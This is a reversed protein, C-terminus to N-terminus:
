VPFTYTFSRKESKFIKITEASAINSFKSTLRKVFKDDKILQTPSPIISADVDYLSQCYWGPLVIIDIQNIIAEDTSSEFLVKAAPISNGNFKFILGFYLKESIDYRYKGILNILQEQADPKLSFIKEFIKKPIEFYCFYSSKESIYIENDALSTVYDLFPDFVVSNGYIHTQSKATNDKNYAYLNKEKPISPLLETVLNWVNKYSSVGCLFQYFDQKTRAKNIQHLFLHGEANLTLNNGLAKVYALNWDFFKPICNTMLTVESTPTMFNLIFNTTHKHVLINDFHLDNHVIGFFEMVALSYICQFLINYFSDKLLSENAIHTKPKLAKDLEALCDRMSMMEGGNTASSGTIMLNVPIQPFNEGVAKYHLSKEYHLNKFRGINFGKIITGLECTLFGLLPIFNPSHRKLIINDTIYEYVRKEYKLGISNYNSSSSASRKIDELATEMYSSKSKLELIKKELIKLEKKHRSNKLPNLSPIRLYKARDLMQQMQLILNAINTEITAQNILHWDVWMKVACGFSLNRLNIQLLAVEAVAQEKPLYIGGFGEFINCSIPNESKLVDLIQDINNITEM